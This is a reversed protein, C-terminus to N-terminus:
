WGHEWVILIRGWFFTAQFFRDTHVCELFRTGWRITTFEIALRM